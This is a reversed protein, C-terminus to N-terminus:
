RRKAVNQNRSGAYRLLATSGEGAVILITSPQGGPGDPAANSKLLIRAHAAVGKGAAILFHLRLREDPTLTVKYRKM